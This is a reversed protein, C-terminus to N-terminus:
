ESPAETQKGPSNCSIGHIWGTLYDLFGPSFGKKNTILSILEDRAGTEADMFFHNLQPFTRITYEQHGSKQFAQLLAKGNTDANVTTDLGGFLALIPCRLKELTPAPDFTLLHKYWPSLYTPLYQEVLINSDPLKKRSEESLKELSKEVQKRLITKIMSVDNGTLVAEYLRKTLRIMEEVEEDTQGEQRGMCRITDTDKEDTRVFYGGM